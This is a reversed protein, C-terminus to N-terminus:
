PVMIHAESTGAAMVWAGGAERTDPLGTSASTAGPVAVTVHRGASARDPGNSAIWVSGYVAQVRTGNAEAAKVMAARAEREPAEAAFRRNQALRDLNGVNTCQVAFAAQGPEGSRDYCVYANTGEKLTTYTHDANWKIVAAGEAARGSLPTLAREITEASTQAEAGASVLLVGVVAIIIRKM